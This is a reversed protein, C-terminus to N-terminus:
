RTQKSRDQDLSSVALKGKLRKPSVLAGVELLTTMFKGFHGNATAFGDLLDRL